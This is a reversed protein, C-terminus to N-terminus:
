RPVSDDDTGLEGDDESLLASRQKVVRWAVLAGGLLLLGPALWLLANRASWRPRFLIFEGYRSVMLDRIQRDSMGAQLRERVERRLDGAIDVPSDAISENQCQVCRLEHTLQLYRQQLAADALPPASDVAAAGSAALLLSLAVAARAVSV